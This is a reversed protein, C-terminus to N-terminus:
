RLESNPRVTSVTSLENRLRSCNDCDESLMNFVSGHKQHRETNAANSQRPKTNGHAPKQSYFNSEASVSPQFRIVPISSEYVALDDLKADDLDTDSLEAISRLCAIQSSLAGCERAHAAEAKEIRSALRARIDAKEAKVARFSEAILIGEKADEDVLANHAPTVVQNTPLRVHIEMRKELILEQTKIREHWENMLENEINFSQNADNIDDKLKADSNAIAEKCRDIGNKTTKAL